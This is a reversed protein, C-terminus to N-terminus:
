HISMQTVGLADHDMLWWETNNSNNKGQFDSYLRQASM